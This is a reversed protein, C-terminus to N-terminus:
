MREGDFGKRLTNKINLFASEKGTLSSSLDGEYALVTQNKAYQLYKMIQVNSTDSFPLIKPCEAQATGDKDKNIIKRYQNDNRGIYEMVLSAPRGSFKTKGASAPAYLAVQFVLPTGDQQSLGGCAASLTPFLCMTASKKWSKCLGKVLTRILQPCKKEPFPLAENDIPQMHINAKPTSSNLLKPTTQIHEKAWNIIGIREEKPLKLDPILRLMAFKNDTLKSVQAVYQKYTNHRQGEPINTELRECAEIIDGYMSNYGRKMSDLDQFDEVCDWFIYDYTPLFRLRALDLQIDVKQSIDFGKQKMLVTYAQHVEELTSKMLKYDSNPVEIFFFVGTSSCSKGALVIGPYPPEIQRFAEIENDTLHDYELCVIGNWWASDNQRKLNEFFCSHVTIAPLQKKLKPKEEAVWNDYRIGTLCDEGAWLQGCIDKVQPSKMVEKIQAWSTNKPAGFNQVLCFRSFNSNQKM